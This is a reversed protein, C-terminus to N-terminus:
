FISRGTEAILSAKVYSISNLYEMSTLTSSTIEVPKFEIRETGVLSLGENKINISANLDRHIKYGCKKCRYVKMSLKNKKKVNGCCSCTKTSPYWKNVEIPTHSKNKLDAIIGGISTYLIRKGYIRQWAKISEDQFIVRRNSNKLHSVVKNKIDKKINNAKEYEKRIKTLAKYWNNSHLEKRSVNQALKRLRDTVPIQYNIKIGNSLTLQNKIGFDVGIPRNKPKFEEKKQYTTIHVYYDENKHVLNANAIDSEKPIQNLGSVKLKQDLKEIKIYNKNLIKYTQGYQKLPISNVYSKFNLKGVKIGKEKLKALAVINNKTRDMLSQKMQASLCELERTEVKQKVKVEVELVKSDTKFVDQSLLNNYFWKTELFLRSLHEKTKHNFHSKDIKIEFVRCTQLKRKAKTIKLTNKISKNKKMKVM